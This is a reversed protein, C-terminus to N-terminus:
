GPSGIQWSVSISGYRADDPQGEFEKTRLVNSYAFQVRGIRWAAGVSLDAVWQRKDVSHSDTFTNGDLFINHAVFRGDVSTFFYFSSKNDLKPDLATMGEILSPPGFDEPINWGVRASGGLNLGTAVNGLAFGAHPILDAALTKSLAASYSRWKREYLLLLGPENKLQNDWGKFRSIFRVEHILDQGQRGLAEPGVIGLNLEVSELTNSNLVSHLSMAAYLWGAYPRDDIILDRRQDDEPTYMSQGIALGFRTEENESRGILELVERVWHLHPSSESGRPSLWSLRLGNTYHRDSGHFLDNEFQFTLTGREGHSPRAADAAEEDASVPGPLAQLILCFVAALLRPQLPNSLSQQPKAQKNPTM